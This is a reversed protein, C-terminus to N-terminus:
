ASAAGISLLEPKKASDAMEARRDFRSRPWSITVAAGQGEGKLNTFVLRAGSRELLTKAIFIGLGLGGHEGPPPDQAMRRTTVYPDGLRDIVEPPFGRGDDAVEVEVHSDDWRAVIRVESRAFDVANEV